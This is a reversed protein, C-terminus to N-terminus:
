EKEIWEKGEGVNPIDETARDCPASPLTLKLTHPPNTLHTFNILKGPVVVVKYNLKISNLIDMKDVKFAAKKIEENSADSKVYISDIYVGNVQIAIKTLTNIYKEKEKEEKMHKDWSGPPLGCHESITKSKNNM